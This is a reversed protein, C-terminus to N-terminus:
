PLYLDEVAREMLNALKTVADSGHYNGNNRLSSVARTSIQLRSALTDNIYGEEDMWKTILEVNLKPALRVM